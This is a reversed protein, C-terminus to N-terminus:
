LHSILIFPFQILILLIKKIGLFIQMLAVFSKGYGRQGYHGQRGFYRGHPGRSGGCRRGRCRRRCGRGRCGRRNRSGHRRYNGDDDNGDDDNGDDDNNDDDNNDDDSRYTRLLRDSESVDNEEESITDALENFLSNADTIAEENSSADTIGRLAGAGGEVQISLLIVMALGAFLLLAIKGMM